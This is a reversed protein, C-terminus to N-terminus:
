KKGSGTKWKYNLPQIYFLGSFVGEKGAYICYCGRMIMFFYLNRPVPSDAQRVQAPHVMLFCLIFVM